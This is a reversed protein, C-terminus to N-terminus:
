VVGREVALWEPLTLSCMGDAHVDLDEVQSRPFWDQAINGNGDTYELLVANETGRVLRADLEVREGGEDSEDDDRM